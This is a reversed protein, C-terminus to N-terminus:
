GDVDGCNNNDTEDNDNDHNFCAGFCISVCVSLSMFPDVSFLRFLGFSQM